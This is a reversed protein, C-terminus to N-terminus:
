RPLARVEFSPLENWWRAYRSYVMPERDALFATLARAEAALGRWAEDSLRHFATVEIGEEVPRWVGAVYGDVLITPLVDGNRRTILARYAPPVLRSRDAYALLVSDWMAMLRPPAPTGEDPRPAGPVDFLEIGDPGELLELTDAQARLADRATSRALKVFQAFDHVSAPGFAELYRRALRQVCADHGPAHPEPRAAVFSPRPGYSWPGVTPAHLLPAFTRLAWWVGPEPTPGLRETLLADIEASTRTHATFRVVERVLADVDANSLGTATFRPDRLRAARASQAMAGHFAPHDDVHVVHLTVRMLTAKVVAHEAFATDLDAPDFDAIRNWLALYPSAAHQAQVAVIRHVARAVDLPERRLLLQRELAARNLQRATLRM